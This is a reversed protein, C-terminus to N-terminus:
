AIAQEVLDEQDAPVEEQLIVVYDDDDVDFVEPAIGLCVLNGECRDPVVGVRM